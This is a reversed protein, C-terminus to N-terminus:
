TEKTLSERLDHLFQGGKRRYDLATAVRNESNEILRWRLFPILTQVWGAVAIGSESPILEIIIPNSLASNGFQYRLVGESNSTTIKLKHERAWERIRSLLEEKSLEAEFKARLKGLM